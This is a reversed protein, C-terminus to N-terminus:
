PALLLGKYVITRSSFSCIYGTKLEREIQRRIIFLRREDAGKVFLQRIKPMAKRAVPGVAEPVVPVDRWAVIDAGNARVKEEILREEGVAGFIMAIGYAGKPPLQKMQKRFFGDPIQVLLGAGDGTEPDNGTAGRHMLRKLVTLGSTVIDHSAANDINAVLGVGCADHEFARDYMGIQENQHM